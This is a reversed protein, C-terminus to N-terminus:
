LVGYERLSDRTVLSVSDIAVYGSEEFGKLWTILENVQLSIQQTLHTIM